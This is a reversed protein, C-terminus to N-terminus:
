TNKIITRITELESLVEDAKNYLNAVSRMAAATDSGNSILNSLQTLLGYLQPKNITQIPENQEVLKAFHGYTTTQCGMAESYHSVGFINQSQDQTVDQYVLIGAVPDTFEANASITVTTDLPYEAVRIFGDPVDISQPTERSEIYPTIMLSPILSDPAFYSVTYATFQLMDDLSPYAEGTRHRTEAYSEQDEYFGLIQGYVPESLDPNKSAIVLDRDKFDM